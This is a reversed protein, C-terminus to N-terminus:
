FFNNMMDKALSTDDNSHDIAEQKTIKGQRVLQMLSANLTHMGAASGTQLATNIQNFKKEKILNSIATNNVLIETAAVRGNGNALPVLEQTVIGVLVTSLQAVISAHAEIPSESIIRDITQAASKTHLTSFVLHGTEAATIAANITEFDRMEGVLIIDPDERLTSRLASAFSEADKGVQRQHIMSKEYPYVYEIPDEITIIHKAYKKNIYNVMSALTTSKGSGTPGTILVLGGKKDAFTKVPAPMGLQELTPIQSNILRISCALNNRQRYVNVRIRNGLADTTAIDVDNGEKLMRRDTEDMLSYIMAETESLSPIENKLIMLEGYRRIAVATGATLHVDSCNNERADTLLKEFNM